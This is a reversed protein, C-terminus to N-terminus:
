RLPYIKPPRCIGSGAILAERPSVPNRGLDIVVVRVPVSACSPHIRQVLKKVSFLENMLHLPFIHNNQTASYKEERSPVLM